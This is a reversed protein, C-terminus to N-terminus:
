SWSKAREVFEPWMPDRKRLQDYLRANVDVPYDQMESAARILAEEEYREPTMRRCWTQRNEFAVVGPKTLPHHLTSQAIAEIPSGDKYTVGTAKCRTISGLVPEAIMESSTLLTQTYGSGYNRQMNKFRIDGNQGVILGM